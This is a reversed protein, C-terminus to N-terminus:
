TFFHQLNQSVDKQIMIEWNLVKYFSKLYSSVLLNSLECASELYIQTNNWVSKQTYYNPM